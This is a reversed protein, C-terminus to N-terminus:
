LPETVFGLIYSVWRVIFHLSVGVLLSAIIITFSPAFIVYFSLLSGVVWDLEDFFLWSKGPAIDLRRKFFSKILDGSLACFGIWAGFLTNINTYDFLSLSRFAPYFKYIMQQLYFILMGVVSGCVLGRYTKHSGLIEKGKWRRGFDIPTNWKPFIKTVLIPSM